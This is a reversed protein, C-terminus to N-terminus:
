AARGWARPSCSRSRSCSARCSAAPLRSPWRVPPWGAAPRSCSSSTTPERPAWSPLPRSCRRRLGPTAPPGRRAVRGDSRVAGVDDVAGGARPDGPPGAACGGRPPGREAGGGPAGDGAAAALEAAALAASREGGGDLAHLRQAAEVSWGLVGDVDTGHPRCLRNLEARREQAAALRMPDDDVGAAYSALEGALDGAMVCVEHARARCRPSSPIATAPLTSRGLLSPSRRSPAGTM